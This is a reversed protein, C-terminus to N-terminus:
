PAALLAELRGREAPDAEVRLAARFAERAREAEGLELALSGLTKWLDGRQPYRRALTEYHIAAERVRGLAFAARGAIVPSDPPQAPWLRRMAKTEIVSQETVSSPQNRSSTWTEAQV